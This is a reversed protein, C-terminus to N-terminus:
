GDSLVEETYLDVVEIRINDRLRVDFQVYEDGRKVKFKNVLMTVIRKDNFEYRTQLIDQFPKIPNDIDFGANSLGWEYLIFLNGEEPVECDDLLELMVREYERYKPTKRRQGLWAANVSLPNINVRIM